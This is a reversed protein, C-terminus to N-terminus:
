IIHFNVIVLFKDCLALLIGLILCTLIKVILLLTLGIVPSFAAGEVVNVIVVFHEEMEGIVLNSADLM